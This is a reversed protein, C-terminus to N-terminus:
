KKTRGTEEEIGSTRHRSAKVTKSGFSYRLSLSASRSDRDNVVKYNINGYQASIRENYTYFLDNVNLSIMLKNDLLSKRVGASINGIPELVFYGQKLGFLYFGSIEASFGYPLTFSNNLSINYSFGRSLYENDQAQGSNNTAYTANVMLNATWWKAPSVRYNVMGSFSQNRGFNVPIVGYRAEEGSAVPANVILDSVHSYSLRAMLNQKYSYSFQFNHTYAPTLYPNGAFYSYADMKIEFPNLQGYSPRSIRRSYSIGLTHRDPRYNIFLSPFLNIYSSDSVTGYTRQEGKSVTYEGRLGAQVSWKGWSKSLNLYAAHIQETYIFHNTQNHDTEWRGDVYTEYLLDNDTKSRSSKVGAELRGTEWVPHTYDLKGSYIDIQQPNVHRLQEEDRVPTKAENDYNNAISQLPKSYFRGYDLDINLQRGTKPFIQQYNANAQQRNTQQTLQNHVTMQAVNEYAPTIKTNGDTISIDKGTGYGNVLLGLTRNRSFFFDAGLRYQHHMSATQSKGLTEQDFTILGEPMKISNTQSIKQWSQSRDVNYNGFLNVASSRYNLQLGAETGSVRSKTAGANVSGNMGYQLGKKTRINIIGGIGAADYRSSPNTIVEVRDITEGQTSTLLMKLQDGSLRSPRGDIWIEASHGMATISGNPAVLVGPVHRLVDLADRGASLIHSGVNVIYRDVHQEVFPRRATVVVENLKNASESLFIEGLDSQQPVGANRYSTEYGIYSIRVLYDGPKVNEMKFIGATDTTIGTIISSDAATMLAVTAYAVPSNDARDKVTGTLPHQASLYGTFLMLGLITISVKM